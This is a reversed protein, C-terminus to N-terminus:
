APSLLRPATLYVAVGTAGDGSAARVQAQFPRAYIEAMAGPKRRLVEAVTFAGNAIIFRAFWLLGRLLEAADVCRCIARGGGPRSLPNGGAAFKLM